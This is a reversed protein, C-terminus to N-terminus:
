CSLSPLLPCFNRFSHSVEVSERRSFYQCWCLCKNNKCSYDSLESYTQQVYTCHMDEFFLVLTEQTFSTTPSRQCMLHLLFLMDMNINRCHSFIQIVFLNLCSASSINDQNKRVREIEPTVSM